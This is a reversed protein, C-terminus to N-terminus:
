HKVWLKINKKYRRSSKGLQNGWYSGLATGFGGAVSGLLGGGITGLVSGWGGGQNANASSWANAYNGYNQANYNMVSTPTYTSAYNSYGPMTAQYIPQKGSISLGMNRYYDQWNKTQELLGTSMYDAGVGALANEGLQARMTDMYSQKAWDPLGQQMGTQAQQLAQQTFATEQPYMAEQATKMAEGLPQAYQQALAVQQQAELPAYKQQLEWMAPYNAVWDAMSEGATPAEPVNIKTSGV